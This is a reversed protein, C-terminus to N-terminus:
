LIKERIVDNIDNRTQESFADRKESVHTFDIDTDLNGIESTTHLIRSELNYFSLLDEIRTNTGAEPLLTSLAMVGCSSTDYLGQLYNNSLVDDDDLFVIFDGMARKLGINRANSVGGEDVQILDFHYDRHKELYAKVDSYYPENCGNLVVIIEFDKPHMTQAIISDFCEWIYSHPKYTPIIISIKYGANM